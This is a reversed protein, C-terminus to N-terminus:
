EFSKSLDMEMMQSEEIQGLIMEHIKENEAESAELSLHIIEDEGYAIDL